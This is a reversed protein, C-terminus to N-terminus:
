GRYFYLKRQIAWAKANDNAIGGPGAKAQVIGQRNLLDNSTQFESGAENYRDIKM